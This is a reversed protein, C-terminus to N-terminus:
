KKQQFDKLVENPSPLSLDRAVLDISRRPLVFGPLLYGIANVRYKGNGLDETDLKETISKTSSELTQGVVKDRYYSILFNAEELTYLDM